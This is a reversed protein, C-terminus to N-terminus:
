LFMEGILDSSSESCHGISYNEMSQDKVEYSKGWYGPFFILKIKM